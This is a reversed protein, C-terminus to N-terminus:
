FWASSVQDVSREIDSSESWATSSGESEEFSVEPSKPQPTRKLSKSPSSPLSICRLGLVHVLTPASAAQTSYDWASSVQDVSREIDSSEPWSINSGESEEFSVEPWKPQPTRKLNQPPSNPLSVCRLGLVHV